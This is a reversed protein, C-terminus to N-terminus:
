LHRCGAPLSLRSQVRASRGSFQGGLNMLGGVVPPALPVEILCM